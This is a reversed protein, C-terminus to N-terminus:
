LLSCIHLPILSTVQEKIIFLWAIIRILTHLQNVWRCGSHCVVHWISSEIKVTLANWCNSSTCYQQVILSKPVWRGTEDPVIQYSGTVTTGFIARFHVALLIIACIIWVIIYKKTGQLVGSVVSGWCNTNCASILAHITCLDFRPHHLSWLM